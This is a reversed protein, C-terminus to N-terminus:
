NGFPSHMLHMLVSSYLPMSLYLQVSEKVRLHHSSALRIFETGIYVYSLYQRLQAASPALYRILMTHQWLSPEM